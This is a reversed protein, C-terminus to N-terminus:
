EASPEEVGALYEIVEKKGQETLWLSPGSAGDEDPDNTEFDLHQEIIEVLEDIQTATLKM